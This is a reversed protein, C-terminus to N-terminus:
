AFSFFKSSYNNVATRVTSINFKLINKMYSPLSTLMTYFGWNNAVHGACIAWVAGSTLISKWPTELKQFISSCFLPLNENTGNFFSIRIVHM